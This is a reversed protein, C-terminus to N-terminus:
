NCVDKLLCRSCKKMDKEVPCEGSIGLHCLAFDYKVPDEPDFCRLNDTIEEAMKWGATKLTTLGLHSCIRAVHT